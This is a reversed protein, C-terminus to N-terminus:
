LYLKEKKAKPIGSNDMASLLIQQWDSTMLCVFSFRQQTQGDLFLSFVWCSCLNIIMSFHAANCKICHLWLLFLCDSLQMWKKLIFNKLWVCFFGWWLIRWFTCTGSLYTLEKVHLDCGQVGKGSWKQATIGWITKALDRHLKDTLKSFLQSLASKGSGPGM